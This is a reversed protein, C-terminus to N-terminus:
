IAFSKYIDYQYESIEKTMLLAEDIDLDSFERMDLNSHVNKILEGANSVNSISASALVMQVLSAYKYELAKSILEATKKTMSASCMVPFTLVLDNASKTISKVSKNMGINDTALKLVKDPTDKLIFSIVDALVTENYSKM